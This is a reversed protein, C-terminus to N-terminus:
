YGTGDDVSITHWGSAGYMSGASANYMLRAMAPDMKAPDNTPENDGLFDDLRYWANLMKEYTAHEAMFKDSLDYMPVSNFSVWQYRLDRGWSNNLGRQQNPIAIVSPLFPDCYRCWASNRKNFHFYSWGRQCGGCKLLELELKTYRSTVAIMEANSMERGNGFRM